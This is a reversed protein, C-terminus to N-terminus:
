ETASGGARQDDRTPGDATDAHGPPHVDSYEEPRQSHDLHQLLGPMISHGRNLVIDTLRLELWAEVPDYGRSSLWERYSPPIEALLADASEDAMLSTLEKLEAALARGLGVDDGTAERAYFAPGATPNGVM